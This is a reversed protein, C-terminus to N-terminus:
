SASPVTNPDISCLVTCMCPYTHIYTYTGGGQMHCRAAKPFQQFNANNIVAQSNQSVMGLAVLFPSCVLYDVMVTLHFYFTALTYYM